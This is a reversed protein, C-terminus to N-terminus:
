QYYAERYRFAIGEAFDEDEHLGYSGPLIMVPRLDKAGSGPIADGVRFVAESMLLGLVWMRQSEPVPGTRVETPLTARLAYPVEGPLRADAFPDRYPRASEQQRDAAITLRGTTRLSDWGGRQNHFIFYRDLDSCGIDLRYGMEESLLTDNLGYLGVTWQKAPLPGGLGEIGLQAYGVPLRLLSNEAVNSLSGIAHSSVSDDAWTVAARAEIVQEANPVVWALWEPQAPTVDKTRPQDTLFRRQGVYAANWSGALWAPLRADYANRGQILASDTLQGATYEEVRLQFRTRLQGSDLSLGPSAAVIEPPTRDFAQLLRALNWTALGSPDPVQALAPGSDQYANSGFVAERRLQVRIEEGGSTTVRIGIPNGAAYRSEPSYINTIM